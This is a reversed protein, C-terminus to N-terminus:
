KKVIQAMYGFGEIPIFQNIKYSDSVSKVLDSFEERKFIQSHGGDDSVIANKEVHVNKWGAESYMNIRTENSEPTYFDILSQKSVRMLEQIIMRQEFEKFSGITGFNLLSIDYCKDYIPLNMFDEEIFMLNNGQVYAKSMTILFPNNDVGLVSKNKKALLEVEKGLGSGAVLINKRSIDELISNQKEIYDARTPCRDPDHEILLREIFLQSDYDLISM